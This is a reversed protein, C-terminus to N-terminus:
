DFRYSALSATGMVIQSFLEMTTVEEGSGGGSDNVFRLPLATPDAAGLAVFLPLLHEVRPHARAFHPANNPAGVLADRLRAWPLTAGRAVGGAALAAPPRSVGLAGALWADWERAWRAPPSGPARSIDHLNHTAFGSGIILAGEARLPALARGLAVNRELSLSGHLSVQLAPVDAAPFALKLPVFVGHDFGRAPDLVPSFGAASLLSAARAAVAPAGPAPWAVQYSEPPFGYYDFLLPPKAGSQVRVEDADGEWHASIVVLSTPRVPLELSAELGRLFSAAPSDADIDQFLGGRMFFCPGGGHSLFLTPLLPHM